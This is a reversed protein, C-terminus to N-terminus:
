LRYMERAMAAVEFFDPRQPCYMAETSQEPRPHDATHFVRTLRAWLTRREASPPEATDAEAADAEATDPEATTPEPMNQRASTPEGLPLTELPYTVSVLAKATRMGDACTTYSASATPIDRGAHVVPADPTRTNM